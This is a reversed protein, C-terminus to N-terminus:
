HRLSQPQGSEFEYHMRTSTEAIWIQSGDPQPLFINEPSTDSIFGDPQFRIRALGRGPSREITQTWYNSHALTANPQSFAIQVSQDLTYVVPNTQTEAYGSLGQLGYRNRRPDIWLEVPIGEAIARSQGYRTLSLFQRAENDLNRGQFFGKLSPAIIAIVVVIITMVLVLEVLTFARNNPQKGIAFTM